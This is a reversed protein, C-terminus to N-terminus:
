RIEFRVTGFSSSSGELTSSLLRQFPTSGFYEQNIFSGLM